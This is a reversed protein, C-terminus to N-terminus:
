WTWAVTPGGEGSLHASFTVRQGRALDGLSWTKRGDSVTLGVVQSDAGNVIQLNSFYFECSCLSMTLGIITVVKLWSRMNRPEGVHAEPSVAFGVADLTRKGGLASMLRTDAKSGNCVNPIRTMTATM